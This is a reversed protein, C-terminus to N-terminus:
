EKEGPEPRNTPHLPVQQVTLTISSSRARREGYTLHYALNVPRAEISLEVERKVSMDISTQVRFSDVVQRAPIMAALTPRYDSPVGALIHEYREKDALFADDLRSQTNIADRALRVILDSLQKQPKSPDM